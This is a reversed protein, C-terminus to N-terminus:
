RSPSTASRSRAAPRPPRSPCPARGSRVGGAAVRTDDVAGAPLVTPVVGTVGGRGVAGGAGRRGVLPPGPSRPLAAGTGCGGRGGGLRCRPWPASSSWAPSRRPSRVPTCTGASTDTWPAYESSGAPRGPSGCCWRSGASLAERFAKGRRGAADRRRGGTGRRRVGFVDRGAVQVGGVRRRGGGGAGVEGGRGHEADVLDGAAAGRHRHLGCRRPDVVGAGLGGARVLWEPLPDAPARRM